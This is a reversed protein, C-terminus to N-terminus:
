GYTSTWGSWAAWSNVYVTLNPLTQDRCPDHLLNDLGPAHHTNREVMVSVTQMLALREM